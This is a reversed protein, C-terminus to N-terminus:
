NTTERLTMSIAAGACGEVILVFNRIIEESSEDHKAQELVSM